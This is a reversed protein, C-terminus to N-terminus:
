ETYHCLQESEQKISEIVEVNKLSTETALVVREIGGTQEVTGCSIELSDFQGNPYDVNIIVDKIFRLGGDYSALSYKTASEGTLTFDWKTGDWSYTRDNLFWDIGVLADKRVIKIKIPLLVDKGQSVSSTGSTGTVSSSSSPVSIDEGNLGKEYTIINSVYELVVSPINQCNEWKGDKCNANVKTPGWNYAALVIKKLDQGSNGSAYDDSLKKLYATGIKINVAPIFPSQSNQTYQIYTSNHEVDNYYNKVDLAAGDTIQMLGRSDKNVADKLM